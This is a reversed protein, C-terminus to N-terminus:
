LDMSVPRHFAYQDMTNGYQKVTAERREWVYRNM